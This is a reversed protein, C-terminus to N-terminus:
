VPTLRSNDNVATETSRKAMVGQLLCKVWAQHNMTLQALTLMSVIGEVMSWPERLGLVSMGDEKARYFLWLWMVVMMTTGMNKHIPAVHPPTFGNWSKGGGGGGMFRVGGVMKSGSTNRVTRTSRRAAIHGSRSLNRVINLFSMNTPHM